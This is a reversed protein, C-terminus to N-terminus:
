SKEIGKKGGGPLGSKVTKADGGGTIGLVKAVGMGPISDVAAKAAASGADALGDAKSKGAKEADLTAELTAAGVKLATAPLKGVGPICNIVAAVPKAIAVQAKVLKEAPNLSGKKSEDKAMVM